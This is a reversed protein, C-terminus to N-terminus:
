PPLSPPFPLLYHKNKEVAYSKCFWYKKEKSVQLKTTYSDVVVSCWSNVEIFLHEIGLLMHLISSRCM